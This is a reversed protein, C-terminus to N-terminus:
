FPSLLTSDQSKPLIFVDGIPCDCTKWGHTGTTSERMRSGQPADRNCPASLGVRVRVPTVCRRTAYGISRRAPGRSPMARTPHLAEPLLTHYFFSPTGTKRERHPPEHVSPHTVCSRHPIPVHIAPCHLSIRIREFAGFFTLSVGRVANAVQEKRLVFRPLITRPDTQAQYQKVSFGKIVSPLCVSFTFGTAKITLAQPTVMAMRYRLRKMGMALARLGAAFAVLLIITLRVRGGDM